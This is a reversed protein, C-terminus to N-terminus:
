WFEQVELPHVQKLILVSIWMCWGTGYNELDYAPIGSEISNSTINLQAFAYVIHTCLMPNIDDVTFKGPGQRSHAWEAVYCVV